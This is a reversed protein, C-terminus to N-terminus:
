RHGGNTTVPVGDALSRRAADLVEATRLAEALVPEGPKAGTVVAHLEDLVGSVTDGAPWRNKTTTATTVAVSPKTADLVLVGHSGSVRYRHHVLGGARIGARASARGVVITSTLGHEHDMALLTLPGAATAHVRRVPLGTLAAVADVPYGGFNLLEDACPQGGAVVFDAQVNWPLGVRGGRVADAGAVLMPHHRHHQGVLVAVGRERAAAVVQEAEALTPTFPKDALVHRGAEIAATLAAARVEARAAVAVVPADVTSLAAALDPYCPVGHREAATHARAEDAPHTAAVGAIRFGPHAAFAPAYMATQHDQEGLGGFGALLVDMM